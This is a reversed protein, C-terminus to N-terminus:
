RAQFPISRVQKFIDSNAKLYLAIHHFDSTWTQLPWASWNMDYDAKPYIDDYIGNSYMIVGYPRDTQHEFLVVTKKAELAKSAAFGCSIPDSCWSPLSDRYRSVAREILTGFIPIGSNASRRM